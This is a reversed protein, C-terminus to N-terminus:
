TTGLSSHATKEKHGVGKTGDFYVEFFDELKEISWRKLLWLLLVSGLQALCLPRRNQKLVGADSADMSM